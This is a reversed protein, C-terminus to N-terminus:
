EKPDQSDADEDTSLLSTILNSNRKKVHYMTRVKEGLQAITKVLADRNEQTASPPLLAPTDSKNSVGVSSDFGVPSDTRQNCARRFLPQSEHRM